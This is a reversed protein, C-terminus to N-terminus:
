SKSRPFEEIHMKGHRGFYVVKRGALFAWYAIVGAAAARKV